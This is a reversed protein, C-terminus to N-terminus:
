NLGVLQASLEWLREADESSVNLKVEECDAFFKGSVGELEEAM